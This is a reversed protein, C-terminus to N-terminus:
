GITKTDKYSPFSLDREREGLKCWPIAMYACLGATQVGPLPGM